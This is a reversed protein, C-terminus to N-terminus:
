YTKEEEQYEELLIETLKSTELFDLSVNITEEAAVLIQSTGDQNKSKRM